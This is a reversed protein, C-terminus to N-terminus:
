ALVARAAAAVAHADPLLAGQLAPASPFRVDPAGLRAPPADLEDFHRAAIRAVLEAGFGGTVNAEHVVLVRNARAVVREIAADDLPALWRLDLVAVSVGEAALEEAAELVTHQVRGWTLIALDDGARRLRAGGVPELLADLAVDGKRQYLVRSEFLVCPDDDAVAARLMAYADQPTGPLGVRLGPVHALLAELSQSHQACSGPAVGQQCRVVLPATRSGRHLYRVNAAQNVLQDLAVLLFDGWM